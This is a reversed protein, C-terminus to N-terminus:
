PTGEEARLKRGLTELVSKPMMREVLNGVTVILWMGIAQSMCAIGLFLGVFCFGWFGGWLGPSDPGEIIRLALEAIPPTVMCFIGVGLGFFRLMRKEEPEIRQIAAHVLTRSAGAQRREHDSM